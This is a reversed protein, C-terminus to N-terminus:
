HKNIEIGILDNIEQMTNSLKKNIENRLEHPTNNVYRDKSFTFLEIDFGLHSNDLQGLISKGLFEFAKDSDTIQVEIIIKDGNNFPVEGANIDKM